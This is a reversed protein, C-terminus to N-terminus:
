VTAWFITILGEGMKTNSIEVEGSVRQGWWVQKLFDQKGFEPTLVGRGPAHEKFFPYVLIDWM